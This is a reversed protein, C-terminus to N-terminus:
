HLDPARPGAVQRRHPLDRAAVPVELRPRAPRVVEVELELLVREPHREVVAHDRAECAHQDATPDGM